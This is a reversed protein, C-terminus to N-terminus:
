RANPNEDFFGMPKLTFGAHVMNMIPWEEPRPQHTIGMTYWLVVDKDYISQDDEVFSPLGDGGTSQNPYDGAANLEADNFRTCWVHYNIFGARKRVMTEPRLFPVSNHGPMLMYSTAGKLSNKTTTSFVKWTRAKELSMKRRAEKEFRLEYDDMAIANGYRNEEQPTSWQDVESFGNKVGDVDLDMRFSFFHQHSPAIINKAVLAGHMQGDKSDIDYVTDATGKPLLIGTLGVDVNITGDASFIYSVAYDYNGVTAIHTVVLDRGRRVRNEGTFPDAHKWLIGADREYVGIANKLTSTKGASNLLTASITRANNPLDTGVDMSTTLNGVGYEGVDFANRWYWHLSTDGYPVVMESLSIRHAIKRTKNKYNYRVSHIVLGERPHLTANFKWGQWEITSGNLNFAKKANQRISFPSFTEHKSNKISEGFDPLGRAIPMEIRDHFEIVRKQDLNVVCVLGEVPKDYLNTKTGPTSVYTLCRVLRSANSSYPIGSAWTDIFIKSSDINRRHLARQWAGHKRVIAAASDYDSDVIMPQVNDVRKWETVNGNIANTTVEYVRKSKVDRLVTLIEKQLADPKELFSKKIPDRLGSTVFQINEPCRSDKRITEVGRAIEKASPQQFLADNYQASLETNASALILLVFTLTFLLTLRM